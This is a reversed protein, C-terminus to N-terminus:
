GLLGLQRAREKHAYCYLIRKAHTPDFKYTRCNSCKINKAVGRAVTPWGDRFKDDFVVCANPDYIFYSLHLRKGSSDLVPAYPATAALRTAVAPPAAFQHAHAAPNVALHHTVLAAPNAVAIPVVPALTGGTAVAAANIKNLLDKEVKARWEAAEQDKAKRWDDDEQDKATRWEMMEKHDSEVKSLREGQAMLLFPQMKQEIVVGCMEAFQALVAPSVGAAHTQPSPAVAQMVGHPHAMANRTPRRDFHKAQPMRGIPTDLSEEARRKTNADVGALAESLTAKHYSEREPSFAFRSPRPSPVSSVSVNSTSTAM